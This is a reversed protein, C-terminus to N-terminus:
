NKVSGISRYNKRVRMNFRDDHTDMHPWDTPFYHWVVVVAGEELLATFKKRLPANFMRPAVCKMILKTLQVYVHLNVMFHGIVNKVDFHSHAYRPIIYMYFVMRDPPVDPDLYSDFDLYDCQRHVNGCLLMPNPGAAKCM